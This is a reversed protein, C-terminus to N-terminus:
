DEYKNNQLTSSLKLKTKLWINREGVRGMAYTQRLFIESFNNEFNNTQKFLLGGKDNKYKPM